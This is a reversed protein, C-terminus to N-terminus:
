KLDVIPEKLGQYMASVYAITYDPFSDCDMNGDMLINLKDIIKVDCKLFSIKLEYIYKSKLNLLTLTKQISTLYIKCQSIIRKTESYTCYTM